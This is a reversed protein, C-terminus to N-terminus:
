CRCYAHRSTRSTLAVAGTTKKIPLGPVAQRVAYKSRSPIERGFSRDSQEQPFQNYWSLGSSLSVHVLLSWSAQRTDDGM